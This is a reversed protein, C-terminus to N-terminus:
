PIYIRPREEQTIRITKLIVLDFKPIHVTHKVYVKSMKLNLVFWSPVPEAYTM